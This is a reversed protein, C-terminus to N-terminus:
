KDDNRVCEVGIGKFGFVPKVVARRFSALAELADNLNITVVTKPTSIGNRRFLYSSIYKNAARAISDPPNVVTIGLENLQCIIDFRFSLDNQSAPGLDRVIVADLKTLDTKGAHLGGSAIDSTANSFSFKVPQMGYHRVANCLAVGTWDDLDTVAVGINKM